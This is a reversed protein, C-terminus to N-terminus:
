MGKLARRQSERKFYDREQEAYADDRKRKAKKEHWPKEDSDLRKSYTQHLEDAPSAM